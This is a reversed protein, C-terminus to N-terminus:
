KANLIARDSDNGEWLALEEAPLAEFFEPGIKIQGKYLGIPRKGNRFVPSTRTEGAPMPPPLPVLKAVPVRKRGRTLIVEEGALAREVLKSLQTKAEHMTAEM